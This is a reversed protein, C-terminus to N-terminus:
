KQQVELAPPGGPPGECPVTGTVVWVGGKLVAKFPRESAVVDRGYVPILVAEAISVATVVDPVFGAKPVVSSPQSPQGCALSALVVLSLLHLCQPNEVWLRRM